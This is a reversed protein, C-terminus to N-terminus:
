LRAADAGGGHRGRREQSEQTPLHEPLRRQRDGPRRAKGGAGGASAGDGISCSLVGGLGALAANGGGGIASAILKLLTKKAATHDLAGVCSSPRERGEKSRRRPKARGAGARPPRELTKKGGGTAATQKPNQKPGRGRPLHRGHGCSWRTPTMSCANPCGGTPRLKSPGAGPRTASRRCGRPKTTAATATM